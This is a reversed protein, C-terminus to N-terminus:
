AWIAYLTVNENVTIDDGPDYDDGSGDAKTNWKSFTKSTPATLGVAYMAKATAGATYPSNGDVVKGTGGNANYEVVFAGTGGSVYVQNFWGAKVSAPTDGTTRAMVNGGFLPTASITSAQTQPTKNNENTQSSIAPRTGVCNYLVYYENDVDGDIQFLLAFSAPEAESNEVLVGNADKIFKWLEMLVSDPFRAVTLDGQYGNNSTSKYYIMGDAYFPTLEGQQQMDISVAGRIAVPNAFAYVPVDGSVTETLKAVHVNKLNFRVKNKDM